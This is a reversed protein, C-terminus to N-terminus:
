VVRCSVVRCSAVCGPGVRRVGGVCLRCRAGRRGCAVRAGSVGWAPHLIPFSLNDVVRYAHGNTHGNIEVGVSFCEVCLDFDACVACKIRINDSIDRHCYNCHYLARPTAARANAPATRAHAHTHTHPATTLHITARLPPPARAAPQRVHVTACCASRAVFVRLVGWGFVRRVVCVCLACRAVCRAAEEMNKSFVSQAPAGRRARRGSRRQQQPPPPTHLSVARLLM